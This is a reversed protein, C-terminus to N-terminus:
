TAEPVALKPLTRASADSLALAVIGIFAIRPRAENRPSREM